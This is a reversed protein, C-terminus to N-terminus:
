ASPARYFTQVPRFGLSYYLLYAPTNEATVELVARRLGIQRFSHLAQLILARGLGKGRHEPVVGVNQITGQGTTFSSCQITGCCGTPCAILWTAQPLFYPSSSIDELLLRCGFYDAFSPFLQADLEQCFARYHVDAHDPLVLPDWPVWFYGPPLEPVPPLWRLNREMRYRKFLVASM